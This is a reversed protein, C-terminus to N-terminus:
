LRVAGGDTIRCRKLEYHQTTTCSINASIVLQSTCNTHEFAGSDHNALGCRSDPSQSAYQMSCKVQQPRAHQPSSSVTGEMIGIGHNKRILIRLLIAEPLSM